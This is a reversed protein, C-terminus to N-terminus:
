NIKRANWRGGCYDTNSSWPGSATDGKLDGNARLLREGQTFRGVIINAADVYGWPDIGSADIAVIKAGRVTVTVDGSKPCNGVTTVVAVRWKGDVSTSALGGHDQALVPVPAISLILPVLWQVARV